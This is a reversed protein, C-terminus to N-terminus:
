IIEGIERDFVIKHFEEYEKSVDKNNTHIINKIEGNEGYLEIRYRSHNIYDLINGSKPYSIEVSKQEGNCYVVTFIENSFSESILKIDNM